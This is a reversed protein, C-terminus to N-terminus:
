RSCVSKLITESTSEPPPYIWDNGKRTILKGAGRGMSEKHFSVRLSKFRFLKCDGQLYRKASLYGYHPKPYDSLDWYYVYGDHKRIREFDVYSTNGSVYKGMKTWEAQSSTPFLATSFLLGLTFILIKM